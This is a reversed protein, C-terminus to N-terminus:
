DFQKGKSEYYYRRIEEQREFVFKWRPDKQLVERDGFEWLDHEKPTKLIINRKYLKILDCNYAGKSCVHSMFYPSMEDGLPEGSIESVHEREEWIEEFVKLEGTAKKWKQKIPTRKLPAKPKNTKVQPRVIQDRSEKKERAVEQKTKGHKREFECNTCTSYKKNQIPLKKCVSCKETM